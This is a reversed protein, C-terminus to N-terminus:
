VGELEVRQQGAPPRGATASLFEEKSVDGVAIARALAQRGGDVVPRSDQVMVVGSRGAYADEIRQAHWWLLDDPLENVAFYRADVTENTTTVIDGALPVARFLIGHTGGNWWNPRSYVGVLSVLKVQIGTEELTERTAAEAVSEGDEVGGSPLCWVPMDERRTLLVRAGEFVAVSVGLGPM